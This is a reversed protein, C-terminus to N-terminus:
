NGTTSASLLLSQEALLQEAQFWDGDADGPIGSACRREYLHFALQRVEDDSAKSIPAASKKPPDKRAREVGRGAVTAM